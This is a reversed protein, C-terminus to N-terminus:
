KIEIGRTKIAPHHHRASVPRFSLSAASLGARGSSGGDGRRAEGGIRSPSGPIPQCGASIQGRRLSPMSISPLGHGPHTPGCRLVPVDDNRGSRGTQIPSSPAPQCETSVQVRRLPLLTTISHIGHGAHVPTMERLAEGCTAAVGRPQPGFFYSSAVSCAYRDCHRYAQARKMPPSLLVIARYGM